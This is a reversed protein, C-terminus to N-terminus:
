RWLTRSLVCKRNRTAAALRQIPQSLWRAGVWAALLLAGLHVGIDLVQGPHLM